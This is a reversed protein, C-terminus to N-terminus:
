QAWSINLKLKPVLTDGNPDFHEASHQGLHCEGSFIAIELQQIVEPLNSEFVIQLSLDADVLYKRADISLYRVSTWPHRDASYALNMFEM